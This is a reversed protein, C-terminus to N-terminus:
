EARASKVSRARDAAISPTAFDIRGFGPLKLAPHNFDLGAVFSFLNLELGEVRGVKFGFLGWITAEIGTQSDTPGLYAGPKYDKGIATPPLAAGLEPVARLVAAIFTNSNPGPWFRYHGFTEEYDRIAKEIKSIIAAAAAGQADAIITPRRGFWFGDPAYRNLTPRNGLWAGNPLGDSDRSAFGLVEYRSWLTANERKFVIWNHTLFQGRRGSMPASFVVVRAEPDSTPDPLLGSSSMVVRQNDSSLAAPTNYGAVMFAGRLSLPLAFVVLVFLVLHKLVRRFNVADDGTV